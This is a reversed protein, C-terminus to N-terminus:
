DHWKPLKIIFADTVGNVPDYEFGWDLDEVRDGNPLQVVVPTNGAAEERLAKQLENVRM